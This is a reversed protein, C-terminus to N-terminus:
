IMYKIPAFSKRHYVTPGYLNLQKLHFNTPYGKHRIFGYRPYFPDLLSISYDRIVKAIISAASISPILKDGKILCQHSVNKFNPAHNGDVLVLDPKIILNYVARKIALLRAQLINLRDIEEISSYGISWDLAHEIINKYLILRKRVSLVKSDALGPILQIQSPTLIVAAAIVSGVLSGCGSEDVGAIITSKPFLCFCNKYIM